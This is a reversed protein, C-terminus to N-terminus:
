IMEHCMELLDFSGNWGDDTGVELQRYRRELSFELMKPSRATAQRWQLFKPIM